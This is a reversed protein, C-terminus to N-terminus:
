RAAGAYRAELQARAKDLAVVNAGPAAPPPESEGNGAIWQDVAHRSWRGALTPLRRPFGAAELEARKACFYERAIGLVAAVEAATYTLRPIPSM